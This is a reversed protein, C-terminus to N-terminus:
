RIYSLLLKNPQSPDLPRFGLTRHEYEKLCKVVCLNSNEQFSAHFSTKLNQGVSSKKALGPLQFTVGEPIYRRYRLDHSVIESVREMATLAFLFGLMQSLDKLSLSENASLCDFFSVVLNVDWTSSYRPLPPRLNFAGKLLQVVLPHEGVRVSDINPTLVLFHM